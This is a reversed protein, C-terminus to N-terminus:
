EFELDISLNVAVGYSAESWWSKKFDTLKNFAESVFEPSACICVILYEWEPSEPDVYLKLQLKETPFYKRIQPHAELIVDILNSHKHLFRHVDVKNEVIYLSNIKRLKNTWGTDELLPKHLQEIKVNQFWNDKKLGTNISVKQQELLM